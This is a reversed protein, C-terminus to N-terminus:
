GISFPLGSTSGCNMANTDLRFNPFTTFTSMSCPFSAQQVLKTWEYRKIKHKLDVPTELILQATDPHIQTDKSAKKVARPTKM